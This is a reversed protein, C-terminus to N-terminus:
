QHRVKGKGYSDGCLPCVMFGERNRKLTSKKKDRCCPWKLCSNPMVTIGQEECSM